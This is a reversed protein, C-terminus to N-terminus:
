SKSWLPVVLETVGTRALMSQLHTLLVHPWFLVHFFVSLGTEEGSYIIFSTSTLAVNWTQSGLLHDGTGSLFLGRSLQWSGLTFDLEGQDLPLHKALDCMLGMIDTYVFKVPSTCLKYIKKATVHKM